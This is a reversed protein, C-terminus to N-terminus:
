QSPTFPKELPCHLVLLHVHADVVFFTVDVLGLPFATGVAAELLTQTDAHPEFTLYRLSDNNILKM